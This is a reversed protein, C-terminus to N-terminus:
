PEVCDTLGGGIDTLAGRTAPYQPRCAVDTGGLNGTVNSESFLAFSLDGVRVGFGANGTSSSDEFTAESGGRVNVGNGGNGSITASVLRVTSHNIVNVGPSGDSGNNRVMSAYALIYGQNAAMGAFANGQFIDYNSNASSNVNVRMGAALNNQMVNSDLVANSAASVLVGDYLASQITNGSLYCVSMSGCVVGYAGGTVAFGQLTVSRSDEIDVTIGVGGSPDEIAARLNALLTLRDFGQILVDERCTGSVVITVNSNRGTKALLALQENISGKKNCDVSFTSGAPQSHKQVRAIQDGKMEQAVASALMCCVLAIALAANSFFNRTNM